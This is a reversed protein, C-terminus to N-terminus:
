KMLFQSQFIFYITKQTARKFDEAYDHGLQFDVSKYANAEPFKQVCGQLILSM